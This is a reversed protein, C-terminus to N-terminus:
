HKQLTQMVELFNKVSSNNTSNRLWQGIQKVGKKGEAVEICFEVIGDDGLDEKFGYGHEFLFSATIALSTRKNGDVFPHNLSLSRMLVGAKEFTDPYLEEGNFTAFPASLASKLINEDRIGDIGGTEEIIRRHAHTTLTSLEEINEMSREHLNSPNIEKVEDAM